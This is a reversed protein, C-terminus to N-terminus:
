NPGLARDLEQIRKEVRTRTAGTLKLVSRRFWDLARIQYARKDDGKTGKALDAWADGVLAMKEPDSPAALDLEAATRLDDDGAKALHPLGTKWDRTVFCLYRGLIGHADSDDPDKELKMRAQEAANWKASAQTLRERWPKVSKQL